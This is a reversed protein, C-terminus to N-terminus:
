EVREQHKLKSGIIKEIETKLDDEKKEQELYLYSGIVTKFCLGTLLFDKKFKYFFSKM